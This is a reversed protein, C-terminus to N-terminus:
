ADHFTAPSSARPRVIIRPRMGREPRVCVEGGDILARWPVTWVGMRGVAKRDGRIIEARVSGMAVVVLDDGVRGVYAMLDPGDCGFIPDEALARKLTEVNLLGATGEAFVQSRLRSLAPSAASDAFWAGSEDSGSPIGGRVLDFELATAAVDPPARHARWWRTSMWAGTTMLAGGLFAAFLELVSRPAATEMPVEVPALETSAASAPPSSTSLAAAPPTAPSLSGSATTTSATSSPISASQTTPASTSIPPVFAGGLNPVPRLADRDPTPAIIAPRERARNLEWGLPWQNASCGELGKTQQEMVANPTGPTPCREDPHFQGALHGVEHNIVYRRYDELEATWDSTAGAWRDGNIAVTSGNQCSYTDSGLSGCLERTTSASSVILRYPADAAAVFRFGASAWSRSDNLTSLAFEEFETSSTGEVRSEFRLRITIVEAEVLENEGFPATEGQAGAWGAPASSVWAVALAVLISSRGASRAGVAVEVPWAM